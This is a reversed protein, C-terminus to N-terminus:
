REHNAHDKHKSIMPSEQHQVLAEDSEAHYLIVNFISTDNQVIEQDHETSPEQQELEIM